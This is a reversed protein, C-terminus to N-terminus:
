HIVVDAIIGVRRVALAVDEGDGGNLEVFLKLPQGLIAIGGDGEVSEITEKSAFLFNVSGDNEGEVVAINIEVDISEGNKLFIAEVGDREEWGSKDVGGEVEGPTLNFLHLVGTKDAELGVGDGVEIKGSEWIGM